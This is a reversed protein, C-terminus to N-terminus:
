RTTFVNKLLNNWNSVQEIAESQSISGEAMKLVLDYWGNKQDNRHIKIGRGLISYSIQPAGKKYISTIVNVSGQNKLISLCDKQILTLEEQPSYLPTNIADLITAVENPKSVGKPIGAFSYGTTAVRYDSVDPGMPPYLIAYDVNKLKNGNAIAESFSYQVTYNMFGVEGNVFKNKMESETGYSFYGKKGWDAYKSLVNRSAASDGTFKVTTNSRTLWDGNNSTAMAQYFTLNEADIFEAIPKKGKQAIAACIKEFETWNWKKSNQLEYLKTESYGVSKLVDLNAFMVNVYCIRLWSYTNPAIGYHIGDIVTLDTGATYRERDNFDMVKLPELKQLLNASYADIFEQMSGMWWIDVMPAGSAISTKVQTSSVSNIPLYNLKCNYTSEISANLKKARRGWDTTDNGPLNADWTLITIKRGKLNTARGPYKEPDTKNIVNITSSTGRSSATSEAGSGKSATGKSETDNSGTAEGSANDTGSATVNDFDVDFGGVNTSVNSSASDNGCGTFAFTLLLAM